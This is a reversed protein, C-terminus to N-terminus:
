FTVGSILMINAYPTFEGTRVVARTSPLLDKFAEHPVLRAPIDGLLKKLNEFLARSERSATQIEEAILVEEVALEALVAELTQLFGPVGRTLALDIRETEEPIPLGADAIVLRDKHGAESIVRSIHSNLIGTKKM